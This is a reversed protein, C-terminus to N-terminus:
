GDAAVYRQHVWRSLHQAVELPREPILAHGAGAVVVTTVRDGLQQRLLDAYRPAAITDSDAQMELIAATGAAFYVSVPTARDAARQAAKIEPHWGDLWVRCDNGPAFFATQLAAIRADDSLSLDACRALADLIPQDYPADGNPLMGPSGALMAIGIVLEPHITALMRAIFNGFAHGAVVTPSLGLGEIAIAVDEALDEMALDSLPGTSNGIGRPQPRLVRHGREALCAAVHDFDETGRGLSPLLFVAAGAGQDLVEITIDGRRLLHREIVSAAQRAEALSTM